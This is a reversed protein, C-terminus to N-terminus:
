SLLLPILVLPVTAPGTGCQPGRTATHYQEGRRDQHSPCSQLHGELFGQVAPRKAYTFGRWKDTGMNDRKM